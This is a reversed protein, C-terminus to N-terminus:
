HRHLPEGVRSQRPFLDVPAAPGESAVGALGVVVLVAGIALDHWVGGLAARLAPLLAVALLWVGIVSAPWGSTRKARALNVGLIGVLIGVALENWPSARPVFGLFPSAALWAGAAGILWASGKM